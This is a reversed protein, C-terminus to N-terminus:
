GLCAQLVGDFNERKRENKYRRLADITEKRNIEGLVAAVAKAVAGHSTFLFQCVSTVNAPKRDVSASEFDVLFPKNQKSIIIDPNIM